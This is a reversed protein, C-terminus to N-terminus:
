LAGEQGCNPGIGVGGQSPDGCQDIINFKASVIIDVLANVAEWISPAIDVAVNLADIVDLLTGSSSPPDRDRRPLFGVLSLATQPPHQPPLMMLPPCGNSAWSFRFIVNLVFHARFRCLVNGYPVICQRNPISESGPALHTSANEFKFEGSTSQGCEHDARGSLLIIADEGTMSVCGHVTLSRLAGFFRWRQPVGAM